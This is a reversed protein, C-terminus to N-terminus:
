RSFERLLELDALSSIQEFEAPSIVDSELMVDDQIRRSMAIISALLRETQDDDNEGTNSPAQEPETHLLPAKEDDDNDSPPTAADHEAGGLTSVLVVAVFALMLNEGPPLRFRAGPGTALKLRALLVRFGWGPERQRSTEVLESFLRLLLNMAIRHINSMKSARSTNHSGRGPLLGHLNGPTVRTLAHRLRELHEQAGKSDGSARRTLLFTVIALTFM